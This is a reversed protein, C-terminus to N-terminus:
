FHLFLDRMHYSLAQKIETKSFQELYCNKFDCLVGNQHERFRTNNTNIQHERHKGLCLFYSDFLVVLCNGFFLFWIHGLDELLM